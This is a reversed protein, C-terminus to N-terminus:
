KAAQSFENSFAVIQEVTLPDLKDHGTAKKLAALVKRSDKEVKRTTAWFSQVVTDQEDHPLERLTMTMRDADPGAAAPPSNPEPQAAGNPKGDSGSAWRAFQQGVSEDLTQGAVLFTRHQEQLKLPKPIGPADATLLFSATAEFPLTKECIPTWGHLSTPGEREHIEIKGTQENRIMEIKQEARFCLILHSRLQLLKNVMQKHAMKPKIWAAMKCAERRKWDQGAMRELEEEQWDLCGGDGSWVHSCSDVVVVPYGAKDAAEIASSYADPRFPGALDGHDFEFRDAYHKARGAETDIVAFRKTGSMGKAVRMASFTKGSGTGGMIGIILGVSERKAPRFSFSM